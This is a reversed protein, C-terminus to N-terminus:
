HVFGAAEYIARAPAFDDMTGTELSVRECGWAAATSVLHDLLGKGVGRGREHEAVHMSKLEAHAQELRKLAGIGLLVPGRRASFLTVHPGTLEDVELAHVHGPPTVERNFALHTAVLDRVDDAFPDEVAIVVGALNADLAPDRFSPM